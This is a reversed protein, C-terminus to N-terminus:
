LTEGTPTAPPSAPTEEAADQAAVLTQAEVLQEAPVVIHVEGLRGVTTPLESALLSEMEAAIGNSQLFGVALTAEEESEVIKAIAWSEDNQEDAM